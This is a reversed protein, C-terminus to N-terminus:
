KRYVTLLGEETLQTWARCSQLSGIPQFPFQVESLKRAQHGDRPVARLRGKRCGSEETGLTAM